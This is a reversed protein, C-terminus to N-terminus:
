LKSYSVVNLVNNNLLSCERHRCERRHMQIPSDLSGKGLYEPNDLSDLSGKGLCEVSDVRFTQIVTSDKHRVNGM